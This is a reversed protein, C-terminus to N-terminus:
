IIQRTRNIQNPSHTLYSTSNTKKTPQTKGAVLSERLHFLFPTDKNTTKLKLLKGVCTNIAGIGDEWFTTTNYYLSKDIGISFLQM